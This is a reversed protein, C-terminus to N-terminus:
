LLVQTMIHIAEDLDVNLQIKELNDMLTVRSEGLDEQSEELIVIYRCNSNALSESGNPKYVTPTQEIEVHFGAAQFESAAIRSISLLEKRTLIVADLNVETAHNMEQKGMCIQSIAQIDFQWAAVCNNTDKSIGTALVRRSEEEVVEYASINDETEPLTLDDFESRNLVGLNNMMEVIPWSETAFLDETNVPFVSQIPFDKAKELRNRKCYINNWRIIVPIELHEFIDLIMCLMLGEEHLNTQSANTIHQQINIETNKGENRASGGSAQFSYGKSFLAIVEETYKEMQEKKLVSQNTLKLTNM